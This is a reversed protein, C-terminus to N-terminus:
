RKACAHNRRIYIYSSFHKPAQCLVEETNTSAPNANFRTFVRASNTVRPRFSNVLPGFGFFHVVAVCGLSFTLQLVRLVNVLKTQALKNQTATRTEKNRLSDEVQRTTITQLKSTLLGFNYVARIAQQGFGLMDYKERQASTWPGSLSLQNGSSIWGSRFELRLGQGYLHTQFGVTIMCTMTTTIMIMTM